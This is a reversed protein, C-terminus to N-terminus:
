ARAMEAPLFYMVPHEHKVEAVANDHDIGGDLGFDNDTIVAVIEDSIRDIGEAKEEKVGMEGLDLVLEKKVPALGNPAYDKPMLSELTGTKGAVKSSLRQLNTAGSLHARYLRRWEKKGTTGRELVLLRDPGDMTIDNIKGNDAEDLIYAYQAAMLKKSLDIEAIRTLRSNKSNQEDKSPPNDLPSELAAYLKDGHIAVGEFGRNMRRHRFYDPLGKGPTIKGLLIGDASFHVLGPAYEEAMWYTGDAALAIGELDLGHDDTGINKGELSVAIEAGTEPPLGTVPRGGALRLPLERSIYLKGRPPDAELFVIRPQFGPLAFPREQGHKTKKEDANPGRDTHTVFRYLGQPSRGLYRLGSFGGMQIQQGSATAGIVPAAKLEM